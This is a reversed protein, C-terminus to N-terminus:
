YSKNQNEEEKFLANSLLFDIIKNQLLFIKINYTLTVDKKIQDINLHYNKSIEQYGKEIEQEYLYINEKKAIEELLFYIQINRSAENSIKQNYQDENLSSLKLYQQFSLNQSKIQNESEKQLKEIEQTILKQPIRLNSNKILFNLIELVNEDRIKVNKKFELEKKIKEHLEKITQINAFNIKKIFEDNLIINKPKTKIEHLIIEFVVKKNSLKEHYYDKPFVIEIKKKEGPIMGIIQEEFGKIFNSSGIELNYNKIKLEELSEGNLFGEFDLFAVDGKELKENNSKKEFGIKNQLFLNIEEKVETETVNNDKKNLKIGKYSCLNVIPKLMFEIGFNLPKNKSLNNLDQIKFDIIKPEGIVSIDKNTLIKKLKEQIIDDFAYKYLTQVGFHKEFLERTVFGKRFGKININPKVKEFTEKTFIEFENASIEFHYQVLEDNIKNIKM